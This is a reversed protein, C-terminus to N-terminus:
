EIETHTYQLSVKSSQGLKAYIAQSFLSYLSIVRLQFEETILFEIMFHQINMLNAIQNKYTFCRFRITMM